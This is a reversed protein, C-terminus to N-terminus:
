SVRTSAASWAADDADSWARVYDPLV